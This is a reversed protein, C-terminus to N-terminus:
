AIIKAHVVVHGMLALNPQVSPPHLRFRVDFDHRQLLAPDSVDLKPNPPAAAAMALAAAGFDQGAPAESVLRCRTLAMQATRECSVTAEGEIGAAIAAPPYYIATVDPPPQGPDAWAASAVALGALMFSVGRM